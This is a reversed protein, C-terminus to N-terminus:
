DLAAHKQLFASVWSEYAAPDRNWAEVHDADELRHYEANPLAAAFDDVVAIPVTQEAAGAILLVPVSIHVATRRQDLATWNVGARLRAVGLALDTLPGALPLGMNEAGLRFVSRPDLLPSDLIIAAVSLKAPASGSLHKFTELAVAGGMSFGYLVVRKVGQNQLFELGTLADRWESHGYHYFGDPSPSSRGHNRYALALVSYGAGVLTPMVRLTEPLDGRRRGHLMLVATDADGTLWWAQVNGVEGKLTLAEYALGLDEQPNQRYVFTDLRAPEGSRPPEGASVQLSRTLQTESSSLVDGLVGHGGAWVLGYTGTRRTDAFQGRSAPAPLTVTDASGDILEFEPMLGYPQPKLVLSSFYWGVGVVLALLM